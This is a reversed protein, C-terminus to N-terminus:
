DRSRGVARAVVDSPFGRRALYQAARERTARDGATGRRKRVAAQAVALWDVSALTERVASPAIGHSVLEAEIYRPGYGAGARRRILVEAYRADSQERREALSDLAPRSEEGGYGKEALKQELERRSHERRALLALARDYASAPPSEPGPKRTSSRFPRGAM